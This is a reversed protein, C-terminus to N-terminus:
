KLFNLLGQAGQGNPGQITTYALSMLAKMRALPDKIWGMAGKDFEKQVDEVFKHYQQYDEFYEKAVDYSLMAQVNRADTGAINGAQTAQKLELELQKIGKETINLDHTDTLNKLQAANMKPNWKNAIAKAKNDLEAGTIHTEGLRYQQYANQIRQAAEANDLSIKLPRNRAEYDSIKNALELGRNQNGLLTQGFKLNTTLNTGARDEGRGSLLWNRRAESEDAEANKLRIEAKLIDLQKLQTQTSIFSSLSKNTTPLNSQNGAQAGNLLAANPLGAERLRAIQQVPSNYANQRAIDGRSQAREIQSTIFQGAYPAAEKLLPLIWGPM